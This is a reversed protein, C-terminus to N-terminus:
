RQFREALLAPDKRYLYLVTTVSLTIFWLGFIWGEIWAWDGSLAPVIVSCVLIWAFSVILRGATVRPITDPAM